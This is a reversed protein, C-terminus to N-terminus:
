NDTNNATNQLRPLRVNITTGAGEESHCGIQGQHLHVIRNCLYLGFGTRAVYTKGPVGHWFKQFLNNQVEKPISRGSNHITVVIRNDSAELIIQVPKEEVSFKLANDILNTFLTTLAEEDGAVFCTESLRDTIRVRETGHLESDDTCKRILEKINNPKIHLNHPGSEYRYIELLKKVLSLQNQNSEKLTELIRKQEDSLPGVTEAILADLIKDTGILPIQLDHALTNTFDKIAALRLNQEETKRREISYRICRVLSDKGIHQKVVYDQAGLSVAKLGMAESDSSTIVIIPCAESFEKTKSLTELGSSDPLNLDLLIVDPMEEVFVQKAQALSVARSFQFRPRTRRCLLQHLFECYYRDDEVMLIKVFQGEDILYDEQMQDTSM